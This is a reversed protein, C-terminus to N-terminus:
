KFIFSLTQTFVLDLGGVYLGVVASLGLVIITLKVTEQRTPWRVARLESITEKLYTVPNM